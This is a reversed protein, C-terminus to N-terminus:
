VSRGWRRSFVMAVVAVVVVDGGGSSRTANGVMGVVRQVRVM